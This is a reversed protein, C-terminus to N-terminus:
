VRNFVFNRLAKLRLNVGIPATEQSHTLNIGIGRSKIDIGEQPLPLSALYPGTFGPKKLFINPQLGCIRYFVRNRQDSHMFEPTAFFHFFKL